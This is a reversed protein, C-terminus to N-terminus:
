SIDLSGRVCSVLVGNFLGQVYQEFGRAGGRLRYSQSRELYTEIYYLFEYDAPTSMRIRIQGDTAVTLPPVRGLLSPKQGSGQERETVDPRLCSVGALAIVPL